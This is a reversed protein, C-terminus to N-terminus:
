RSRCPVGQTRGERADRTEPSGSHGPSQRPPRAPSLKYIKSLEGDSLEALQPNHTKEVLTLENKSLLQWESRLDAM